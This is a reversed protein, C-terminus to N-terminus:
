SARETVALALDSRTAPPASGGSSLLLHRREATQRRPSPVARPEPDRVRGPAAKGRLRERPKLGARASRSPRYRRLPRLGGRVARRGTDPRGPRSARTDRTLRGTAGRSHGFRAWVGEHATAHIVPAVAAFAPASGSGGLNSRRGGAGTWRRPPRYGRSWRARNRTETGLETGLPQGLAHVSRERIRRARSRRLMRM